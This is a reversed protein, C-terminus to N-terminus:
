CDNETAHETQKHRWRGRLETVVAGRPVALDPATGIDVIRGDRVLVVSNPFTRGAVVDVLTAGTLAEMGAGPPPGTCGLAALVLTAGFFRRAGTRGSRTTPCQRRQIVEAEQGEPRAEPRGQAEAGRAERDEKGGEAQAGVEPGAEEEGGEEQGGEEEGGAEEPRGEQRRAEERRAGGQGRSHAEGSEEPAQAPRCWPRARPHEDPGAAAPSPLFDGDLWRDTGM